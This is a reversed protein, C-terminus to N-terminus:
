VKLSQYEMPSQQRLQNLAQIILDACEATSFRAVNLVLDYNAPDAPNVQFHSTLFRDRERDTIEVRRAAEDWTIDSERQVAKIRHKLPAIFRVRLTRARPLIYNAGRGVIVCEGHRGLALLSEVLRRFFVTHNVAPVSFMQEISDRWWSEQREDVSELLTQHVGMDDAIRQLLEKDYVPWGLRNGVERAVAAGYTGAQRSVAITFTVPNERQEHRTNWHEHARTLAETLRLPSLM